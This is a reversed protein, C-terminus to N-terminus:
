KKREKEAKELAENHKEELEKREKELKEQNQKAILSDSVIEQSFGLNVMLLLTIAALYTKM